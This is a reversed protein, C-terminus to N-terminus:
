FNGELPKVTVMCVHDGPKPTQPPQGYYEVITGLFIGALAFQMEFSTAVRKCCAQPRPKLTDKGPVVRSRLGLVEQSEDNASPM